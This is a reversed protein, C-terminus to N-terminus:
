AGCEFASGRPLIPSKVNEMALCHAKACPSSCSKKEPVRINIGLFSLFFLLFATNSLVAFLYGLQSQTLNQQLLLLSFTRLGKM